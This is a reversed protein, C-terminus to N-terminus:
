LGRRSFMFGRTAFNCLHYGLSEMNHARSVIEQEGTTDVIVSPTPLVGPYVIEPYVLGLLQGFVCLLSNQVRPPASSSLIESLARSPSFSTLYRLASALIRPAFDRPYEREPLPIVGGALATHVAQAVDSEVLIEITHGAVTFTLSRPVEEKVMGSSTKSISTNGRLDKIIKEPSVSDPLQCLLSTLLGLIQCSHVSYLSAHTIRSSDTIYETLKMVRTILLNSFALGVPAVRKLSGSDSETPDVSGHFPSRNKSYLSAARRVPESQISSGRPGSVLKFYGALQRAPSWGSAVASGLSLALLTGETNDERPGLIEARTMFSLCSKYRGENPKLLVPKEYVRFPSTM